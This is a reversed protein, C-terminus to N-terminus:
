EWSVSNRNQWEDDPNAPGGNLNIIERQVAKQAKLFSILCLGVYLLSMGNVIVVILLMTKPHDQLNIPPPPPPNNGDNEDNDRKKRGKKDAVDKKPVARPDGEKFRDGDANVKKQKEEAEKILAAVYMVGTCFSFCSLTILSIFVTLHLRAWIAAASEKLGTMMKAQAILGIIEAIVWVCIFIMMGCGGFQMLVVGAVPNEGLVLFAAGAILFGFIGPLAAIVALGASSRATSAAPNYPTRGIGWRGICWLLIAIASFLANGIILAKQGPTLNDEDEQPLGNVLALSTRLILDIGILVSAIALNRFGNAVREWKAIRPKPDFPKQEQSVPLNNKPDDFSSQRRSQSIYEDTEPDDDVDALLKPVQIIADCEPCRGPQGAYEDGVYFRYSCEPCTVSIPM